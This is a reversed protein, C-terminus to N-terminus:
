GKKTCEIQPQKFVGGEECDVIEVEGQYGVRCSLTVSMYEEVSWDPYAVVNDISPIECEPIM